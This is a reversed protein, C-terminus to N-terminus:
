SRDESPEVGARQEDRDLAAADERTKLDLIFAEVKGLDEVSGLNKVDKKLQERADDM